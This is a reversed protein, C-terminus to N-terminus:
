VISIGNLHVHTVRRFNSIKSFALQYKMRFNFFACYTLETVISLQKIVINYHEM